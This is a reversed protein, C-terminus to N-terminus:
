SVEDYEFDAQVVTKHWGGDPGSERGTANRLIVGNPTRAAKLADLLLMAVGDEHSLGDGLPAYVEIFLLGMHRYRRQGNIKGLARQGGDVHQMSIRVWTQDATPKEYSNGPWHITLTEGTLADNILKMVDDRAQERTTM